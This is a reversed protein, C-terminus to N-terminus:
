WDFVHVGEEGESVRYDMSLDRALGEFDIMIYPQLYAPGIAETDIGM